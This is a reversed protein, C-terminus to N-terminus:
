RAEVAGFNVPEMIADVLWQGNATSTVRLPLQMTTFTTMSISAQVTVMVEVTSGPGATSPDPSGEAVNISTVKVATYPSGAIPSGKFNESVYRGLSASDGPVLYAKAFNALTKGLVGDLSTNSTYTTAIRIPTTEPNVIRPLTIVQFAGDKEVFTVRYFNRSAAGGPPVATAAITFAWETEAGETPTWLVDTVNLDTVTMPDPNLNFSAPVSSMSGIADKQKTGGGLWVLTYNRAFYSANTYSSLAKHVDVPAPPNNLVVYALALVAVLIAIPGSLMSVLLFKRQVDARVEPM